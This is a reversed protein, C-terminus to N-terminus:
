QGAATHSSITAQHPVTTIYRGPLWQRRHLPHDACAVALSELSQTLKQPVVVRIYKGPSNLGAPCSSTRESAPSAPCGPWPTVGTSGRGCGPQPEILRWCACSLTAEPSASTSSPCESSQTLSPVYACPCEHITKVTCTIPHPARAQPDLATDSATRWRSGSATISGPYLCIPCPALRQHIALTQSPMTPAAAIEDVCIKESLGDSCIHNVVLLLM